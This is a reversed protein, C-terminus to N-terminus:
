CARRAEVAQKLLQLPADAQERLKRRVKSALPRGLLSSASIEGSLDVRCGGDALATIIVLFSAAVGMKTSKGAIHYPPERGPGPGEHETIEIQIVQKTGAVRRTETWISGVGLPGATTLERQLLGITWDPGAATDTAYAYVEEASAAVTVGWQLTGM